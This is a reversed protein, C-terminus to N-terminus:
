HSGQECYSFMFMVVKYYLHEIARLYIRCKQETTGTREIYAKGEELLQVIRPEDTLRDIYDTSHADTNQLVRVFEDDLRELLM